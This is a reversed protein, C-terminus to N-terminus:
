KALPAPRFSLSMQTNAPLDNPIALEFLINSSGTAAGSGAAGAMGACDRTACEVILTSGSPLSVPNTIVFHPMTDSGSGTPSGTNSLVPVPVVIRDLPGQAKTLRATVLATIGILVVAGLATTLTQKM